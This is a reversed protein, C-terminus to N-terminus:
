IMKKSKAIWSQFAEDKALAKELDSSAKEVRKKQANLEPDNSMEHFSKEISKRMFLMYIKSILGM